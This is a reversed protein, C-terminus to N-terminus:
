RWAIHRRRRSSTPNHQLTIFIMSLKALFNVNRILNFLYQFKLKMEVIRWWILRALYMNVKLRIPHHSNLSQSITNNAQNIHTKHSKVKSTPLTQSCNISLLMIKKKSCNSLASRAVQTYLNHPKPLHKSSTFFCPISLGLHTKSVTRGWILM